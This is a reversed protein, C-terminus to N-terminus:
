VHLDDTWVMVQDKHVMSLGHFIGCDMIVPGLPVEGLIPANEVFVGMEDLGNSM